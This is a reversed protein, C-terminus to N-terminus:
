KDEQKGQARKARRRELAEGLRGAIADILNREAKLFPGEDADPREELYCVEVVGAPEGHVEIERTLKWATDQFRETKYEAGEAVIRVCTIEPYQWAALITRLIGEFLADPTPHHRALVNSIGYLCDLEKVRHNLERLLREKEREGRRRETIDQEFSIIGIPNGSSDHIITAGAECEIETGDKKLLAFEDPVNWGQELLKMMSHVARDRDREAVFDLGYRGIVEERTYGKINLTTENIEQITGQMDMVTIGVGVNDFIARLKEESDRLAEEARRRLTIDEGSSLLGTPRGSESMLISNRWAILRREGTATVVHSEYYEVAQIDGSMIRDFLSRMKDRTDEPVFSDFWNRGIVDRTRCHLIDCGKRNILSVKGDADIVLMMVEAIDLYRQARDRERTLRAEAQRRETIDMFSGMICVPKGRDDSILSLSLEAFFTTGDGRLAELQGLAGGKSIVADLIMLAKQEQKWLTAASKGVVDQGSAYGWLNLFSDNVYTIMGDIDAIMVANISQAIASDKIRLEDEMAKRDTIDQVGALAGVYKGEEDTIPNAMISTYIQSGDKRIFEFDHRESLGSKRRKLLRRATAVNRKHMFDFLKKGSMEDITYGLMQAMRPNVYTTRGKADIEWIGEQLSEVLYRYKNESARLAEDARKRETIDSLVGTLGVPQGNRLLVNSSSIVTHITGDKSLVRFEHPERQGSLTLEMSSVLGRLDEPVVYRSFNTGIVEDPKYGSLREIVPSIHTIQGQTDVSFIVENSNDVLTRYMQMSERFAKDALKRETIDRMVVMDAPKGRYDIVKGSVEVYISNGDKHLLISEYSPELEEGAMRRKYRDVADDIADPHVYRTLPTGISEESTYGTLRRATPNAYVINGDQIIVILDSSQKVVNRYMEERERLAEEMRRRETVESGFSLTAPKGEWDIAVTNIQFWGTGGSKKLFRFCNESPVDEGKIRAVHRNIVQERDDPHVLDMFPKLYLEDQSYGTMESTKPNTLKLIGDQAICIVENSHEFLDRYKEESQRLAEEMRKRETIDYSIVQVAYAIGEADRVPDHTSWFWHEGDALRVKYEFNLSKGQAIVERFKNVLETFQEPFFEKLSCGVLEADPRGLNKAGRPNIMLINGDRDFITVPNSSGEFLLRFREESQRLLEALKLGTIDTGIMGMGEGVKFARISLHKEGFKPHPTLDDFAVPRGTKIVDKYQEYRGTKELDPVIETIHKGILDEKKTGKPHYSLSAQNIDILYLNEDWISFSDTASEMFAHLRSESQQLEYEAQLRSAEIVRIEAALKRMEQLEEILQKKTKEDDKM